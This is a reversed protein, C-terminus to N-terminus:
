LVLAIEEVAYDKNLKLALAFFYNSCVNIIDLVTGDLDNGAERFSHLLKVLSNCKARVCHSLSSPYCGQPLVVCSARGAVCDKLSSLREEVWLLRDKSVVDKSRVSGSICYMLNCLYLLEGKLKEADKIRACDLISRLLGIMSAIEDCLIDVNCQFDSHAEYLFPCAIYDSM